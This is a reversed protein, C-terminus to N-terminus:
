RSLSAALDLRGDNNFDKITFSPVQTKIGTFYMRPMLFTRNGMGFLVGINGNGNGFDTVAIDLLTDNNIDAVFFSTLMSDSRAPYM